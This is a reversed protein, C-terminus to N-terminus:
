CGAPCLRHGIADRFIVPLDRPDKSTYLTGGTAGSIARMAAADSDPGYAITIVVVPRHPDNEARLAALLADLTIGHAADYEDKGDSLVVVSNIRTPDYGARVSRVAALTTDYLGTGGGPVVALQRAAAALDGRTTPNLPVLPELEQYNTSPTLDSSFRWLGAVTGAPFLELAQGVAERAIDMRTTHPRGPVPLSMSGSVDVAALVRSPRDLVSLTGLAARVDTPSLQGPVARAEPSVGLAPTLSQNVRGGSTRFGSQELAARGSASTLMAFLANAASRNGSDGALVVFPYDMALGPTAPYVAAYTLKGSKKNAVWVARETTASAVPLGRDSVPREPLEGRTAGSATRTNMSRVLAALYGRRTPDTGLSSSLSVLVAQSTASRVPDGAGLVIPQATTATYAIQDFTPNAGLKRVVPQPVTLVVPSRAISRQAAAKVAHAQPTQATWVSSDPIWVDPQARGSRLSAAVAAPTASTVAVHGCSLELYSSAMLDVAPAIEPAASVRLTRSAPCDLPRLWGSLALGGTAGLGVFATVSTVALLRRRRSARRRRGRDASSAPDTFAM